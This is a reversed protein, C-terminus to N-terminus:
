TTLTISIRGAAARSSGKPTDGTASVIRMPGAARGSGHLRTVEFTPSHAAGARVVGIRGVSCDGNVKIGTPDQYLPRESQGSPQERGRPLLL